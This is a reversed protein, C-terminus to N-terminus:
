CNIITSFNNVIIKITYYPHMTYQRHASKNTYGSFVNNPDEYILISFNGFIRMCESIILDRFSNITQGENSLNIFFTVEINGTFRDQNISYGDRVRVFSYFDGLSNDTIVNRMEGNIICAPYTEKAEIIQCLGYHTCSPINLDSGIKTAIKDIM